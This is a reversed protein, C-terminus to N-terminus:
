EGKIVEEIYEKWEKNIKDPNLKQGIKKAELSISNCLEESSLLEKIANALEEVNDNRVLIGNIRNDILYKPGGCPCDTSICPIGLSMAEMLSNPMGEYYSSLVFIKVNYIKEIINDVNGPLFVKNNLNLKIIEEELEKRLKGEGYIVLRYQPFDNSIMSFAKILLKHNKQESLRGVSVITNTTKREKRIGVFDPNIPNVIIKCKKKINNPFFEKAENTQLVIGDSKPYLCKMIIRKITTNFLIKPDNRVSIITKTKYFINSFLLLQNPYEMFSLVVDPKYTKKLKNLIILRKLHKIIKSNSKIKNNLRIKDISNIIVNKNITYEIDTNEIMVIMVENNKILNETLNSIVREAGGKRLSNCLFMIKM